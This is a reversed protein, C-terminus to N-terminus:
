TNLMREVSSEDPLFLLYDKPMSRHISFADADFNFKNTIEAVVERSSIALGNSIVSVFVARHLDEEARAISESWDLVCVRRSSLDESSPALTASSALVPSRDRSHRDEM